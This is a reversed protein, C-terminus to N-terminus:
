NQSFDIIFVFCVSLPRFHTPKIPHVTKPILILNSTTWSDPINGTLFAGKIMDVVQPGMIEWERRLFCMTIGDLGPARDMGMEGLTHFIEM